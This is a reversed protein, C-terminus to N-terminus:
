AISKETKAMVNPSITQNQVKKNECKTQQNQHSCVQPDPFFFTGLMQEVFVSKHNATPQFAFALREETVQDWQELPPQSPPYEPFYGM